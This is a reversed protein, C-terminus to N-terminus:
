HMHNYILFKYNDINKSCLDSAIFNHLEILLAQVGTLAAREDTVQVCFNASQMCEYFHWPKDARICKLTTNFTNEQPSM